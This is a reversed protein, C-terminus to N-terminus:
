VEGQRLNETLRSVQMIEALLLLCVTVGTIGEHWLVGIGGSGNRGIHVFSQNITVIRKTFLCRKFSPLRPILIVKQMDVSLYQSEENSKSNQCDIKYSERAEHYRQVHNFYTSCKVCDNNVCRQMLNKGVDKKNSKKAFSNVGSKRKELDIENRQKKSEIEGNKKTEERVHVKYEECLECDEIGLKVFGINMARIKTYYKNYSYKKVNNSECENCYDQYMEVVTIENSLYLRRPAHERRYHPLAPNFSLIHNNIFADDDEPIAHSKPNKGRLSPAVIDAQANALAVDVVRDNSFGLTSLFMKQCVQISEHSSPLYYKRSFKRRPVTTTQSYRRSPESEVVHNYIWQKRQLYNLNWFSSHITKREDNSLKVHCKRMKCLCPSLMQYKEKECGEDKEIIEANEINDDPVADDYLGNNTVITSDKNLDNENTFFNFDVERDEEEYNEGIDGDTDSESCSSTQLYRDFISNVSSILNKDHEESFDKQMKKEDDNFFLGPTIFPLRRAKAEEELSSRCSQNYNGFSCRDKKQLAMDLIKMSRSYEM